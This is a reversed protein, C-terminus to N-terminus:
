AFAIASAIARAQLRYGAKNEHVTDGMLSATDAEDFAGIVRGLDLVPLDLRDANDYIRERRADYTSEAALGGLGGPVLLMTPIGKTTVIFDLLSDFDADSTPTNTGLNLLCVDPLGSTVADFTSTGYTIFLSRDNWHSWTSSQRGHNDIFLKLGSAYTLEIGRLAFNAPGAILVTHTADSLGSKTFTRWPSGATLTWTEPAGGDTTITVDGGPSYYGYLKFGTHPTDSTFRVSGGGTSFTMDNRNSPTSGVNTVSTWRYDSGNAVVFSNYGGLLDRLQAPYSDKGTYTGPAIGSGFTKSDGVCGVRCAATGAMGARVKSRITRLTQSEGNYLALGKDWSNTRTGAYAPLATRAVIPETVATIRADTAQATASTDDAQLLAVADDEGTLGSVEGVRTAAAQAIAIAQTANSRAVETGATAAQVNAHLAELSNNLEDDYDPQGRTPLGYAM